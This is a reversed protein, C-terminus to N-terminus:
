ELNLLKNWQRMVNQISFRLSNEKAQTGFEKQKNANTILELLKTALSSPKQNEALLGDKNNTIINRATNNVIALYM